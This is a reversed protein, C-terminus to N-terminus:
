DVVAAGYFEGMTLKRRIGTNRCVAYRGYKDKGFYAWDFKGDDLDGYLDVADDVSLLPLADHEPLPSKFARDKFSQTCM